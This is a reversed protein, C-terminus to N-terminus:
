APTTLRDAACASQIDRETIGGESHTSYRVVCRNYGVDLDPHHDAQHALWAIANVFAMTQYYNEFSFARRIEGRDSTWLPISKMAGALSEDSLKPM